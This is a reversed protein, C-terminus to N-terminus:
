KLILVQFHQCLRMGQDDPSHVQRNDTVEKIMRSEVEAVQGPADGEDEEAPDKEPGKKFIEHVPEGEMGHGIALPRLSEDICHVAIVVMEGPIFFPQEHGGNGAQDDCRDKEEQEAQDHAVVDEHEEGAKHQTIEQIAAHMIRDMGPVRGEFPHLWEPTIMMQVVVLVLVFSIADAAGEPVADEAGHEIQFLFFLVLLLYLLQHILEGANKTPVRM